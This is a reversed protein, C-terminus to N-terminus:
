SWLMKGRALLTPSKKAVIDIEPGYEDRLLDLRKQADDSKKKLIRRHYAHFFAFLIFCMLIVWRIGWDKELSIGLRIGWIVHFAM